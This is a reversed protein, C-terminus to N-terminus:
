PPESRPGSVATPASDTTSNPAVTCPGTLRVPTRPSTLRSVVFTVPGTVRTPLPFGSAATTAPLETSPGTVHAPLASFGTSLPNSLEPM